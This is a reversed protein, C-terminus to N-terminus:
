PVEHITKRPLRSVEPPLRKLHRSRTFGVSRAIGLGGEPQHELPGSSLMYAHRM